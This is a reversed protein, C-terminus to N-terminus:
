GGVIVGITCGVLSVYVVSVSWLALKVRSCPRSCPHQLADSVGLRVAERIMSNLLQAETTTLSPFVVDKPTVPV